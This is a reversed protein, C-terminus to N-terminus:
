AGKHSDIQLGIVEVVADKKFVQIAAELNKDVEETHGSHKRIKIKECSDIAHQLLINIAEEKNM